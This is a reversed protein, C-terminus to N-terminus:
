WNVAWCAVGDVLEPDTTRCRETALGCRPAFACGAHMHRLSPPAGALTRVPESGPRPSAALLAKTYPHRPSSAVDATPGTEVVRGAYLVAVRDSFDSVLNLDHSILLVSQSDDRNNSLVEAAHDTDLASTPEDAITLV